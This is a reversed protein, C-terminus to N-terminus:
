FLDEIFEAGYRALVAIVVVAGVVQVVRRVRQSPIWMSVIAAGIAIVIVTEVWTM